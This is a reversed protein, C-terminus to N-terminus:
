GAPTQHIRISAWQDPQSVGVLARVVAVIGHVPSFNHFDSRCTEPFWSGTEGHRERLLDAAARATGLLKADGTRSYGTLSLEITDLPATDITSASGTGCDIATLRSSISPASGPTQQKGGLGLRHLALTLADSADPLGDLLAIDPPLNAQAIRGADDRQAEALVAALREIEDARSVRLLPDSALALLLGGLGGVCDVASHRVIADLPMDVGALPEGKAIGLRAHCYRRVYLAAGTGVFAGVYLPIARRVPSAALDAWHRATHELTDDIGRLASIAADRWYSGGCAAHLDAFMIALAGSGSLLDAHVPEFAWCDIYPSHVLGNWAPPDDGRRLAAEHLRRGIAEAQSLADQEATQRACIEPAAVNRHAAGYASLLIEEQANLDFGSLGAIRTQLRDWANGEFHGAIVAGGTTGVADTDPWSVFFPVDLERMADIEAAVIARHRDRASADLDESLVARYLQAFHRERRVPDALLAPSCGQQVLKQCSWTDRCIYRVPASRLSALPSDAALLRPGMRVLTEQMARYGALADGLHDRPDARVGDRFPVHEPHEWGIFDDRTAPANSGPNKRFPTLYERAPAMAGLEECAIGPEIPTPMVVTGLEVVTEALASRAAHETQSLNPRPLRPQMLTELDIFVPQDGAAILNDLWLDRGELLQFLRVLAGMRWYYRAPGGADNCPAAVVFREWAYEGRCLLRGTDLPHELGAENLMEVLTAFGASVRLDKPKYALELGGEFTLLAVARGKNHVDGADGRFGTLRGPLEGAGLYEAIAAADADLRTVIEGILTMWNNISTGILWVAAPFLELRELWGDRSGDFGRDTSASWARASRIEYDLIGGLAQWLRNRLVAIMGDVASDAVNDADIADLLLRRGAVLWPDILGFNLEMPVPDPEDPLLGLAKAFITGWGPLRGPEVLEVPALRTALQKRDIAESALWADFAGEAGGSIAAEWEAMRRAAATEDDVAPRYLTTDAREGPPVARAILRSLRTLFSSGRM